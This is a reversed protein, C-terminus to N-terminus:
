YGFKENLHTIGDGSQNTPPVWKAYKESDEHEALEDLDMDVDQRQKNRQRQRQRRKRQAEEAGPDPTDDTPTSTEEVSETPKTSAVTDSPVTSAQASVKTSMVNDPKLVEAEANTPKSEETEAPPKSEPLNNKEATSPKAVAEQEGEGRKLIDAEKEKVLPTEKPEEEEVEEEDSAFANAPPKTQTSTPAKVVKFKSFQNRKGIMPLQKRAASGEQVSSEKSCAALSNTFPLATPKAIKLLREVKVQEGKLRQQEL